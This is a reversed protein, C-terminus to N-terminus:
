TSAKVPVEAEELVLRTLLWAGLVNCIAPIVATLLFIAIIASRPQAPPLAGGAASVFGSMVPHSLLNVLGSMRIARLLWLLLGAEICLVAAVSASWRWQLVAVPSEYAKSRPGAPLRLCFAVM